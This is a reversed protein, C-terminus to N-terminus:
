AGNERAWDELIEEVQDLYADLAAERETFADGLLGLHTFAEKWSDFAPSESPLLSAADTWTRLLPWLVGLPQESELIV